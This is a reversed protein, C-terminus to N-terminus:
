RKGDVLYVIEVTGKDSGEVFELLQSRKCFGALVHEGAGGCCGIVAGLIKLRM